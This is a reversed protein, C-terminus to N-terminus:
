NTLYVYLRWFLFVLFVIAIMLPIVTAFWFKMQWHPYENGYYSTRNRMRFMNKSSTTVKTTKKTAKRKPQNKVNKQNKGKRPSQSRLPQREMQDGGTYGPTAPYPRTMYPPPPPSRPDNVETLFGTPHYTTETIRVGDEQIQGYGRSGHGQGQNNAPGPTAGNGINLNDPRNRQLSSNVRQGIVHPQESLQQYQPQQPQQYNQPTAGREQNRVPDWNEGYDSDTYGHPPLHPEKQHKDKEKMDVNIQIPKGNRLESPIMISNRNLTGPPPVQDYRNTADRPQSPLNQYIPIRSNPYSDRKVDERTQRLLRDRELLLANSNRNPNISYTPADSSRAPQNRQLTSSDPNEIRVSGYPDYSAPRYRDFTPSKYDIITEKPLTHYQPYEMLSYKDEAQILEPLEPAIRHLSNTSHRMPSCRRFRIFGSSTHYPEDEIQSHRFPELSRSERKRRELERGQRSLSRGGVAYPVYNRSATEYVYRVPSIDGVPVNTYRSSSYGRELSGLDGNTSYRLHQAESDTSRIMDSYPLTQYNSNKKFNDKDKLQDTLSTSYPSRPSSPYIPTQTYHANSDPQAPKNSPTYSKLKDTTYTGNENMFVLTSYTSSVNKTVPMTSTPPPPTTENSYVKVTDKNAPSIPFAGPRQSTANTNPSVPLPPRRPKGGSPPLDYPRSIPNMPPPFDPTKPPVHSTSDHSIVERSSTMKSITESFSRSSRQPENHNLVVVESEKDNYNVVVVDKMEASSEEKGIARSSNRISELLQQPVALPPPPPNPLSDTKSSSTLKSSSSQLPLSTSLPPPPPPPPQPPRTASPVAPPPADVDDTKKASLISPFRKLTETTAKEYVESVSSFTTLRQDVSSFHEETSIGKTGSPQRTIVTQASNSSHPDSSENAASSASDIPSRIAERFSSQRSSFSSSAESGSDKLSGPFSKKEHPLGSITVPRNLHIYTFLRELLSPPPPSDDSETMIVILKSRVHIPLLNLTKSLQDQEQSSLRVISSLVVAIVDIRMTNNDKLWADISNVDKQESTFDVCPTDILVPRFRMRTNNFIYTSIPKQPTFENFQENAIHYRDLSNVSAGYFYSCFFDILYAKGATKPGILIMVRHTRKLEDDAGGAYISRVNPKEIGEGVFKNIKPLQSDNPISSM